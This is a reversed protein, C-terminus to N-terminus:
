RTFSGRGISQWNEVIPFYSSNRSGLLDCFISSALVVKNVKVYNGFHFSLKELGNVRMMLEYWLKLDALNHDQMVAEFGKQLIMDTWRELLEGEVAAILSRRTSKDLHGEFRGTEEVLRRQAYRLYEPVTRGHVNQEGEVHYYLRSAQLFPTEFVSNYMQIDTLMRLLSVILLHSSTDGSREQEILALIGGLVKNRIELSNMALRRWLDLGLEWITSVGLTQLAFTRDLYLFISRIMIMQRCHNSWATHVAELFSEESKSESKNLLDDVVNQVHSEVEASLRKYLNDGFKQHCLNECTKYLEELSSEVPKSRQIAQVAQQLVKWTKLEYDEPLQPTVSFFPM